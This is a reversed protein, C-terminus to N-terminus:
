LQLTLEAAQSPSTVVEVTAPGACRATREQYVSTLEYLVASIRDVEHHRREIDRRLPGILEVRATEPSVAFYHAPSTADVRVLHLRLLRGISTEIEQRQRGTGSAIEKISCHTGGGIWSYIERDESRLLATETETSRSRLSGEDHIVRSANPM